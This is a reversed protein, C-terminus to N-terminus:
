VVFKRIREKVEDGHIRKSEKLLEVPLVSGPVGNYTRKEDASIGSGSSSGYFNGIMMPYLSQWAYSDSAAQQVQQTQQASIANLAQAWERPRYDMAM